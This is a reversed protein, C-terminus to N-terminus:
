EQSYEKVRAFGTGPAIEVVETEVGRLSVIIQGASSPAGTPDFVVENNPFTTSEIRTKGRLRATLRHIPQETTGSADTLLRTVYVHTGAPVVRVRYHCVETVARRQALRLQSVVRNAGAKLGVSRAWGVGSIATVAALSVVAVVLVVETLMIGSRASVLKRKAMLLM